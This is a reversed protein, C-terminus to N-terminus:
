IAAATTTTEDPNIISLTVKGNVPVTNKFSYTPIAKVIKQIKAAELAILKISPKSPSAAPTEIIAKILMSMIATVSKLNITTAKHTIKIPLEKPKRKKLKWGDLIKIPSVPANNRPYEIATTDISPNNLFTANKLKIMGIITIAM